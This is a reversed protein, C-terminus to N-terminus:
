RFTVNQGVIVNKGLHIRRDVVSNEIVIPAPRTDSGVGAPLGGIIADQWHSPTLILNKLHMAQKPTPERTGPPLVPQIVGVIIAKPPGPSGVLDAGDDPGVEPSMSVTDEMTKEIRNYTDDLRDLSASIDDLHHSLRVTEANAARLRIGAVVGVALVVAIPLILVLASGNAFTSVETTSMPSGM